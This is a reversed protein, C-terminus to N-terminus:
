SLNYELTLQNLGDVFEYSFADAQSKVLHLGLGGIPRSDLESTTDPNTSKTPDFKGGNSKM